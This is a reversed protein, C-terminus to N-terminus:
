QKDAQVFLICHSTCWKKHLCSHFSNEYSGCCDGDASGCQDRGLCKGLDVEIDNNAIRGRRHTILDHRRWTASIFPRRAVPVPIASMVHPGLTMPFLGTGTIRILMRFPTLAAISPSEIATAPCMYFAAAHVVILSAPLVHIAIVAAIMAAAMAITITITNGIAMIAIAIAVADQIAVVATGIIWAAISCPVQYGQAPSSFDTRRAAPQRRLVM